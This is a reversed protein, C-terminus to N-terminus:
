RGILGLKVLNQVSLNLITQLLGSTASNASGDGIQNPCSQYMPVILAVMDVVLIAAGL